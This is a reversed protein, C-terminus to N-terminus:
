VVCRCARAESVRYPSVCLETPVLCLLLSTNYRYDASPDLSPAAPM